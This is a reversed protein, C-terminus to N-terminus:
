AAERIIRLEAAADRRKSYVGLLVVMGDSYCRRIAFCDAAVEEIRDTYRLM